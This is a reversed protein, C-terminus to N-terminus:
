KGIWIELLGPTANAALRTKSLDRLAAQSTALGQATVADALAKALSADQEFYYRIESLGRAGAVREGGKDADPINWGQAKLVDAMKVIEGRGFGAFQVYIRSRELESKSVPAVSQASSTVVETTMPLEAVAKARGANCSENFFAYHCRTEPLWAIGSGTMVQAFLSVLWISFIGVLLWSLLSKLVHPLQSLILVALSFGILALPVAWFPVGADKVKDFVAISLILLIFGGAIYRTAARNIKLADSLLTIPNFDM